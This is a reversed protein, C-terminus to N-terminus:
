RVPGLRRRPLAAGSLLDEGELTLQGEGDIGFRLRLRDGGRVGPPQLPQPPPQQEWADVAVEGAPRLRLVPVGQRFVVEAREESRPEGLVLELSDQADRSCALVLELPQETPWPQGALFLPHWRHAGLRQDWCRLCVGRRLVDRLRVGPTLALAGLAVAEVPREQRLPVPGCRERIWRRLLPIRSGGGVPLVADITTLDIGERRAAAQITALLADLQDLLGREALLAEFRQRELRLERSAEGPPAWLRAAVPQESLLCKIAEAERLLEGRAPLDPCLEAAIWRDLDRGGLALGAKGIVRACRLAQRDDELERGGFRLLQAIPAAKGQGGELAVLSLDITGGGVDVVLVRSGPALGAGIAAATPEDVLALEAVPLASCVRRLWQRYGRYAEIPATLVLRQPVVQEPLAGWLRRLLLAGAEQASLWSAGQAGSESAEAAPGDAGIRRKFDRCLGASEGDALGAELVQRGLLAREGGDAAALWILSPVVAPDALSYPPLALLRPAASGGEHWAVVTTTSGLDIALTGPM